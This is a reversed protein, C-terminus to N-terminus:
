KYEDEDFKKTLKKVKKFILINTSIFALLVCVLLIIPKTKFIKDLIIGIIVFISLPGIISTSNYILMGLALEKVTDPKKM